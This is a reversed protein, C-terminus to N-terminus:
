KSFLDIGGDTSISDIRDSDIVTAKDGPRITTTVNRYVPFEKTGTNIQLEIEDAREEGFGLGIASQLAAVGSPLPSIGYPTKDTGEGGFINQSVGYISSGEELSNGVIDAVFNGVPNDGIATGIKEIGGPIQTVNVIENLVQAKALRALIPQKVGEKLGFPNLNPFRGKGKFAHIYQNPDFQRHLWSKGSKTFETTAGKVGTWVRGEKGWFPMDKTIKNKLNSIPNRLM